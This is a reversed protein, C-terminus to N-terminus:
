GYERWAKMSRIESIRSPTVGYKTSLSVNSDFSSRIAEVDAWTLKNLKSGEGAKSKVRNRAYADSVNEKQTGFYIHNPNLCVKVDCKHLAYLDDAKGNVQECVYRHLRVSKRRGTEDDIVTLQPYGSSGCAGVWLWCGSNPEPLTYKEIRDQVSM